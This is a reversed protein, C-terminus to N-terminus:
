SYPNVSDGDPATGFHEVSSSERQIPSSRREELQYGIFQSLETLCGVDLACGATFFCYRRWPGYWKIEGIAGSQGVVLWHRTKPKALQEVFRLYGQKTTM